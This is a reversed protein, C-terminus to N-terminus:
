RVHLGAPTLAKGPLDLEKLRPLSLLAGVYEDGFKKESVVLGELMKLSSLNEWFPAKLRNNILKLRRFDPLAEAINEFAKGSIHSQHISLGQLRPWRALHEFDDDKLTFVWPTQALVWQAFETDASAEGSLVALYPELREALGRRRDPANDAGTMADEFEKYEDVKPRPAVPREELRALLEQGKPPVTLSGELGRLIHIPVELWWPQKTSAM